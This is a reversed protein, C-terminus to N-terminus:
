EKVIIKNNIWNIVHKNKLDVKVAEGDSLKEFYPSSDSYWEKFQQKNAAKYKPITPTQKAEKAM